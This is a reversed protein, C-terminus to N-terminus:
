NQHRYTLALIQEMVQDIMRVAINKRDMLTLATDNLLVNTLTRGTLDNPSIHRVAPFCSFIHHVSTTVKSFIPVQNLNNFMRELFNNLGVSDLGLSRMDLDGIARKIAGM